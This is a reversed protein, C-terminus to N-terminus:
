HFKKWAAKPLTEYHKREKIDIVWMYMLYKNLNFTILLINYCVLQFKFCSGRWYFLTQIVYFIILFSLFEKSNWSQVHFGWKM